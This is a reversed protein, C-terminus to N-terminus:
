KETEKDVVIKVNHERKLRTVIIALALEDKNKHAKEFAELLRKIQPRDTFQEKGNLTMIKEKILQVM